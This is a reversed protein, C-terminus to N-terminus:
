PLPTLVRSMPDLRWRAPAPQEGADPRRVMVRGDPEVMVVRAFLDAVQALAPPLLGDRSPGSDILASLWCRAGATEALERLAVFEQRPTEHWALGDVVVLEPRMGRSEALARLAGTLKATSYSQNLFTHIHRLNDTAARDETSANAALPSFRGLMEDYLNRVHAVPQDLAVHLVPKGALIEALAIQVLCASKGGGAGAAIVGLDGKGMGTALVKELNSPEGREHTTQEQMM